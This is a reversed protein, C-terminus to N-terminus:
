TMTGFQWDKATVFVHEAYGTKLLRQILESCMKKDKVVKFTTAVSEELENYIIKRFLKNGTSNCAMEAVFSATGGGGFLDVFTDCGAASAMCEIYPLYLDWMNGKGGYRTIVRPIKDRPDGAGSTSFLCSSAVLNSKPGLKVKGVLCSKSIM